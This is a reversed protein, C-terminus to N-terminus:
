GKKLRYFQSPIGLASEAKDINLEIELLEKAVESPVTGTFRITGLRGLAAGDAKKLPYSVCKMRAKLAEIQGEPIQKLPRTANM